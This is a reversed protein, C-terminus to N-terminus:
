HPPRCGLGREAGTQEGSGRLTNSSASAMCPSATRPASCLILSAGHTVIRGGRHVGRWALRPTRVKTKRLGSGAPVVVRLVGIGGNRDDGTQASWRGNPGQPQSTGPMCWEGPEPEPHEPNRHPPIERSSRRAHSSPSTRSSPRRARMMAPLDVSFSVAAPAPSSIARSHRNATCSIANDRHACRAQHRSCSSPRAHQGPGPPMGGRDGAASPAPTLPGHRCARAQPAGTNRGSRAAPPRSVAPRRERRRGQRSAHVGLEGQGSVAPGPPIPVNSRHRSLGPISLSSCRASRGPQRPCRGRHPSYWCYVGPPPPTISATPYPRPVPDHDVLRGPHDGRLQIVGRGLASARQAGRRERAAARHVVNRLIDNFPPHAEIVSILPPM